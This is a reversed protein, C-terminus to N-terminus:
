LPILRSLMLSRWLLIPRIPTCSPFLAMSHCQPTRRTSSCTPTGYAIPNPTTRTRGQPRRYPFALLMSLFVMFTATTPFASILLCRNPVQLYNTGIHDVICLTSKGKPKSDTWSRFTEEWYGDEEDGEFWARPNPTQMIKQVDEPDFGEEPIDALPQSTEKTRFHELHLLGLGNLVVQETGGRYMVVKLPNFFIVVEIDKQSGYVARVEDKGVTWQINRSIEPEATLAWSAAEDYRKARGNIEDMRVRVVGDEHIRVDLGFNVEPYLSSKVAATFSAQDASIGLSEPTVSYPSRWNPHQSARESIARGRRCFAAQSCTKFDETKVAFVAPLVALLFLSGFARM